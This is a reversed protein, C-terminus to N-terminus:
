AIADLIRPLDEERVGGGLARGVRAAGNWRHGAPPCIRRAVGEVQREWRALAAAHAHAPTVAFRQAKGWAWRRALTLFSTAMREDVPGGWRDLRALWPSTRNLDEQVQDVMEALLRNVEM